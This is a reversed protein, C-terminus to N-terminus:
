CKQKKLDREREKETQGRPRHTTKDLSIWVTMCLSAICHLASCQMNEDGDDFMMRM